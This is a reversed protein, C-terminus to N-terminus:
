GQALMARAEDLHPLRAKSDIARQLYEKGRAVQGTKVLAKGLHLQLLPASPARAVARELLPLAQAYQGMRYHIWGLSDLQNADRSEVFRGALRLAREMSARDGKVEALLYALNNVVHDNDPQRELLAEYLKIAEDYRETRALWEAREIPIALEKPAKAEGESLVRIAGEVDGRMALTRAVNVHGVSAMPALRICERYAREAAAADGRAVLVDGRLQHHLVNNEDAALRKEVRALADDFRKQRLLLEVAAAYPALSAPAAAAGADFEKLAADIRKQQAHLQGLLMHGAADVPTREKLAAITREAGAVDKAAVQIQVKMDYLRVLTPALKIAADLEALAATTEKADALDAALLMRLEANDPRFKVADSLVERALQGEGAVRHALALLRTLEPSGPQDRLVVRLDAIAERPKADALHIRGRLMLATNDRPNDKLLAEVMQRAEALQGAQLRLTALQSRAAQVSDPNVNHEVIQALVGQMEVPRHFGRYIEVMALRLETDRPAEKIAAQYEAQAAALGARNAVFNLLQVRRQADRPQAQVAARLVAEAKDFERRQVHHGAYARWLAADKPLAQTARRHYDVARAPDGRGLPLAAAIQAAVQLLSANKPESRLARDISALADELRNQKTHIGAILLGLEAPVSKLEAVIANAEVLAEGPKGQRNKLSAALIRAPVSGPEAALVSELLPQAKDFRDGFLYMRALGIQAERLDPQLEVAKLYAGLAQPAQGQGEAIKASLLYAQTNKPDIQLVNRVEISAKDWDAAAVFEAGKKLGSDIRGTKSSCGSVAILAAGLLALHPRHRYKFM